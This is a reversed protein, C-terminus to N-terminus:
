TEVHLAEVYLQNIYKKLEERSVDVEVTDVFHSLITQTDEIDVKEDIEEATMDTLTELVKVDHAGSNYVRDMFNDFAYFDTKKQVVIKVFKNEFTSVDIARPDFTSDDYVFREFMTYPNRCFTLEQTEVDFIHFGRPDNYDMFTLEYPNGLYHISGNSSRHHYHGSFTKDFGSFLNKDFGEHSEMGRYMAFGAIELHGCCFSSNTTKLKEMTANYNASCIWPLMLFSKGFVEIETPESIPEINGYEKLLLEPSNIDLTNRLAIDHNGVLCHMKIGKSELPDFFYERCRKLSYYDVYKRRDFLDGLHLVTTIGEEELKPFFTNTYFKEFFDHFIEKGERAGFHSDTIIAVKTM